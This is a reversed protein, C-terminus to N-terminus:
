DKKSNDVPKFYFRETLRCFKTWNGDGQNDFDKVFSSCFNLAADMADLMSIAQAEPFMPKRHGEDEHHSVIIHLLKMLTEDNPDIELNQAIDRLLGYGLPIHHLLRGRDNMQIIIGWEYALIKGIDHVLCGTHVIDHDLSFREIFGESAMTMGAVHEVLGGLYAHHVTGVGGPCQIFKDALSNESHLIYNWIKTCVPNLVIESKLQQICEEHINKELKPVFDEPNYTEAKKISTITVQPVDRYQTANGTIEVVMRDKVMEKIMTADDWSVGRITGTKDTLDCNLFSGTKQQFSKLECKSIVVTGTIHQNTKSAEIIQQVNM